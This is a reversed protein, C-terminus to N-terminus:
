TVTVTTAINETQVVIDARGPGADTPITVTHSLTAHSGHPDLSRALV